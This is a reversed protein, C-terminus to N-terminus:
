SRSYVPFITIDSTDVTKTGPGQELEGTFYNKWTGPPFYVSKTKQGQSTVPAVLYEPGLMYQNDVGYSGQDEPFEWWLPRMTPVARATVNAALAAIYPKLTHREKIYQSLTAQTANGYSWVENPGCSRQKPQCVGVNPDPDPDKRCGHTRFVPCFLGFQYWRVILEKMYPDNDLKSFGCGYGGVDSTWWPIGSLSSHVGLNVQARLEEFSSEIDSSWLVVGHRQGGAWVGRTLVMPIEGLDAVPDAFTALWDNVWLNSYAPAPGYSTDYGYDGDGIGTGEGDTEDLWYASVGEDYYRPKLFQNWILDRCHKTTPDIANGGLDPNILCKNDGLIKFEASDPKAEPWFSFVTTANISARVGDSLNKVSPYCLPNPAFDGDYDQNKYDIVLVGVPLDLQKYKDAVAMVIDSSKYRNRSQWFIMADERLPPSHGTADAYQTYIEQASAATSPKGAPVASVWLDVGKTAEATWTMGGTGHSGVSVIGAGPMNWLLGYGGTSYAFPITVHFKRQQLKLMQGNRALPVQTQNGGSACGGEKTWNGQGLGFVKEEVNGPKTTMTVASFGSVNVSKSPTFASISASFLTAGNDVRTFDLSGDASLTVELNGNKENSGSALTTSAGPGCKDILAAFPEGPDGGPPDAGVTDSSVPTVM